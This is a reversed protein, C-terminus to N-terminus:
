GLRCTSFYHSTRCALLYTSNWLLVWYTVIDIDGKERRLGL